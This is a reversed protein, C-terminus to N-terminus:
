DMVNGAMKDPFQNIGWSDIRSKMAIKMKMLEHISNAQIASKEGTRLCEIDQSIARSRLRQISIIISRCNRITSTEIMLPKCCPDAKKAEKLTREIPPHKARNPAVSSTRCKNLLRGISISVLRSNHSIFISPRTPM